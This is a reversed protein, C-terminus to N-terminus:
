FIECGKLTHSKKTSKLLNTENTDPSHTDDDQAPTHHLYIHADLAVIGALAGQAEQAQEAAQQNGKGLLNQGENTHSYLM